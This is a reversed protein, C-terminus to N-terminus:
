FKIKFQSTSLISNPKSTKCAVAIVGDIVPEFRFTRYGELDEEEEM